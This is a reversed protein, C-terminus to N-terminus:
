SSVKKIDSVTAKIKDNGKVTEGAAKVLGDNDYNKAVTVCNEAGTQYYTVASSFDSASQADPIRFHEM